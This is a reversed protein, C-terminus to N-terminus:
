VDCVGHFSISHMFKDRRQALQESQIKFQFMEQCEHVINIDSTCFLKM